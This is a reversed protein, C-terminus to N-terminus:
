PFTTTTFDKFTQQGMVIWRPTAEGTGSRVLEPHEYEMQRILQEQGPDVDIIFVHKGADLDKQFRRFERHPTQIGYFGGSWTVFGFMVIALFMFPIWTYTEPLRSLYGILLVLAAALIGILGGLMTGHVVDQKLVSEINHLHRHTEVGSDDKSLVHIQPRVIGHHELEDEIRDLQDLNNSLYYHRKM